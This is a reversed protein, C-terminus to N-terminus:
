LRRFFLNSFARFYRNTPKNRLTEALPQYKADPATYLLLSETKSQALANHKAKAKNTGLLWILSKATNTFLM